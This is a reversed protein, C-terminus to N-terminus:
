VSAAGDLVEATTQPRSISPEIYKDFEKLIDTKTDSNRLEGYVSLAPPYTHSFFQHLDGKHSECAVYLSLVFPSRTETIHSIKSLVVKNTSRYLPFKNWKITGYFSKKGLALVDTTYQHYQEQGLCRASYVSQSSSEDMREQYTYM